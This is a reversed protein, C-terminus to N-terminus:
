LELTEVLKVVKDGPRVHGEVVVRANFGRLRLSQGLPSNVFEAADQGFRRIFKACGNHPKKSVEIVAEGIALRTGTPLNEHSLDLDIFLQDGALARHELDRGLFTVMRSSMVNVQSDVPSRGHSRWRDGVLGDAFTLRGVDLIERRGESPRRVVLDLTGVDQPVRRLAPEFGALEAASRFSNM